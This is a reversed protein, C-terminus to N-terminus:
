NKFVEDKKDLRHKQMGKYATERFVKGQVKDVPNSRHAMKYQRAMRRKENPSVFDPNNWVKEGCFSKSFIAIPMLTMRPGIEVVDRSEVDIQYNRFWIKGDLMSFNFVHDVFPQSKPHYRPTNFSKQIAMKIIKNQVTSNEDELDFDGSFSLLPRSRALCNGSFKLEKTTNVNEVHFRISPGSEVNPSLWLYTDKNKRAEFFMVNQCNKMEALENLQAMGQQKNVKVDKKSHPMLGNLDDILHRVKTNIGRSGVLLVRQRNKWRGKSLSPQNSIERSLDIDEQDSVNEGDDEGESSDVDDALPIEQEQEDDSAELDSMDEVKEIVEEENKIEEALKRQKTKQRKKFIASQKKNFKGM